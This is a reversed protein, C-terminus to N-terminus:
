ISTEHGKERQRRRRLDPPDIAGQAEHLKIAALFVRKGETADGGFMSKEGAVELFRSLAEPFLIFPQGEGRVDGYLKRVVEAPEGGSGSLTVGRRVAELTAVALLHPEPVESNVSPFSYGDHVGYAVGEIHERLEATSVGRSPTLNLALLEDVVVVRLPQYRRSDQVGPHERDGNGASDQRARERASKCDRRIREMVDEKDTPHSTLRMTRVPARCEFAVACSRWIGDKKVNPM